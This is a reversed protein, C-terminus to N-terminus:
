YSEVGTIGTIGTMGPTSPCAPASRNILQTVDVPIGEHLRFEGILDYVGHKATRNM